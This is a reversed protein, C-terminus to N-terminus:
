GAGSNQRTQQYTKWSKQIRRKQIELNLDYMDIGNTQTKTILRSADAELEIESMGNFFIRSEPFGEPAARPRRRFQGVANTVLVTTRADFSLDRCHSDLMISSRTYSPVIVLFIRGVGNDHRDRMNNKNIIYLAQNADISDSCILVCVYGLETLYLRFYPDDPVRAREGARRAPHRKRHAIPGRHLRPPENTADLHPSDPKGREFIRIFGKESPEGISVVGINHRCLSCHASGYFIFPTPAAGAKQKARQLINTAVAEHRREVLEQFAPRFLKSAPIGVKKHHVPPLAFEPFVVMDPQLTLASALESARKEMLKPIQTPRRIRLLGPAEPDKFTFVSTRSALHEVDVDIRSRM